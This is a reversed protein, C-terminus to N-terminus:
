SQYLCQQFNQLNLNKFALKVKESLCTPLDQQTCFAPLRGGGQHSKTNVAESFGGAPGRRSGDSAEDRLVRVVGASLTCSSKKSLVPTIPYLPNKKIEGLLNAHFDPNQHIKYIRNKSQFKWPGHKNQSTFLMTKYDHSIPRSWAKKELFNSPKMPLQVHRCTQSLSMENRFRFSTNVLPVVFFCSRHTLHFERLHGKVM